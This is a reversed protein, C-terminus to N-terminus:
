GSLNQPVTIKVASINRNATRLKTVNGILFDYMYKKVVLSDRWAVARQGLLKLVRPVLNIIVWM